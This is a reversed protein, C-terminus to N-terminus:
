KSRFVKLSESSFKLLYNSNEFSSIKTGVFIVTEPYESWENGNFDPDSVLLVNVNEPIDQTNKRYNIKRKQV